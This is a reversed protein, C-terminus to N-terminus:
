SPSPHPTKQLFQGKRGGPGWGVGFFSKEPRCAPGRRQTTTAPTAARIDFAQRACAKKNQANVGPISPICSGLVAAMICARILCGCSFLLHGQSASGPPKPRVAGVDSVTIAGNTTMHMFAPHRDATLIPVHIKDSHRSPFLANKYSSAKKKRTGRGIGFVNEESSHVLGRRQAVTVSKVARIGCAQRTCANTKKACAPRAPSEGFSFLGSAVDCVAHAAHAKWLFARRAQLGPPSEQPLILPKQLLSPHLPPLSSKEALFLERGGRM